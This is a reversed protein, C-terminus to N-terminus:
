DVMSQGIETIRKLRESSVGVDEPTATPLEAALSATSALCFIGIALTLATFLSRRTM